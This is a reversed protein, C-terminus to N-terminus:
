WAVHVVPHRDRGRISSGPGEPCKWSAGRVYSWWHHLARLDVPGATRHFVLSGPFLMTIPTGPYYSPDAPREAVTIYGTERVFRRFEAVTVPHQDIWYGRVTVTHSPGEEPYLPVDSGMRFTGGPIWVMHIAPPRGPPGASDLHASSMASTGELKSRRCNPGAFHGRDPLSSTPPSRKM